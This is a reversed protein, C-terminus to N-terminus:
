KSELVSLLKQNLVYYKRLLEPMAAVTEADQGDMYVDYFENWFERCTEASAGIYSSCYGPRSKETEVMSAYVGQLDFIPHGYASGAMDVVMFENGNELVNALTIDGHLYNRSDPIANILSRINNSDGISLWGSAEEIWEEYKEKINPFEGADIRIRHIEKLFDAFRSAYEKIKSPDSRIVKAVSRIEIGEFVIGYLNGVMVVEYPILTPIGMILAKKALERERILQDRSTGKKYVKVMSDDNLKYFAGNVSRMLVDSPQLTVSRLRRSVTFMEIFGTVSLIDWVEDSVNIIDIPKKVSKKVKLLVRLGASSIYKLNLADIDIKKDPNEAVVSMIKSEFEPANNSDIRGEPKILVKKKGVVCNM